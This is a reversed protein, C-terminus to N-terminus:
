RIKETLYVGRRGVKRNKVPFTLRSPFGVLILHFICARKVSYIDWTKFISRIFTQVICGCFEKIEWQKVNTKVDASIM